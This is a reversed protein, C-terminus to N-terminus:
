EREHAPLNLVREEVLRRHVTRDVAMLEDRSLDEDVQMSVVGVTVGELVRDHLRRLTQDGPVGHCALEDVCGLRDHGAAGQVVAEFDDDTVAGFM